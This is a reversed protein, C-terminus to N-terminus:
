WHYCKFILLLVAYWVINLRISSGKILINIQNQNNCHKQNAMYSLIVNLKFPAKLPVRPPSGPSRSTPPPCPPHFPTWASPDADASVPVAHRCQSGQLAATILPQISGPQSPEQTLCAGLQVSSLTQQAALTLLNCQHSSSHPSPVSEM